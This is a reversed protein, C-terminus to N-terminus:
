YFNLMDFVVKLTCAVNKFELCRIICSSSPTCLLESSSDLECFPDSTPDIADEHASKLSSWQSISKELGQRGPMSSDILVYLGGVGVSDGVGEGRRDGLTCFITRIGCGCCLVFM